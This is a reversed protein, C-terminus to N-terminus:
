DDGHEDSDNEPKTQEESDKDILYLARGIGSYYGTPFTPDLVGFHCTALRSMWIFM